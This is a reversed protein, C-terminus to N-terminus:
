NDKILKPWPILFSYFPPLFKTIDKNNTIKYNETSIFNNNKDFILRRKNENIKLTYLQELITIKAESLKRFWKEQKRILLSDKILLKEFDQFSLEINKTLGKVKYILEGSITELCYVKPTLFIARKCIYELKLKGLVKSDIFSSDLKSDTYISDTDTYYLNIKHNNKFQSMHIRSYATIAAAITISTNHNLENESNKSEILKYEDIDTVKTISDFFKNEFESFYDNHIININSFNDDMGFRGYLSNMLIKAIFNLPNSKDYQSRLNYLFDVYDKFIIESEFTYGWLVEIEYGYKLANDMEQSFLMDEWTGIPAMTRMGNNTLVRTQLIPHKINDPAVIKCYFFGFANADIKLIDGEFYTPTGIPMLRSEMQSPYLSNIDLSKLKVGPKSKPIYMDVAGGTYGKKIDSAIKGSLQPINEKNMFNSRFIAFALSPLTLYHHINLGFLDFILSNFKIIIQYLALCDINCYKISEAKLVWNNKFNSKYNNYEERSIKNDFMKFSPVIGKYDLNNENVFLFPFITKPSKIKFYKSLKSLSALLILYSDKFEIQYENNKGFKAKLSLMKDNHIIPHCDAIKLLYKLIFIIDFKAMNHIYVKYGHYKRILISNLCDLIMEEVSNYDWLGFVLKNEGDYICILFPILDGNKIFTEIDLTLFKNTLDESKKIKSIFKTKLEKLFLVQLNNKFCYKKNDIIRVFENNNIFEDKFSILITGKSAITVLNYSEFQELTITQGLENQIIFITSNETKITKLISGFDSPIMSNIINVKNFETSKTTSAIIIKNPIKEIKFGYTIIIEKIQNTKYYESKFQVLSLIFDIYWNLDEKNLRQLSGISAFNGDNYQIKFLLYLHNDSTFRYEIKNWFKQILNEFLKKTFIKNNLSIKYEEWANRNLSRRLKVINGKTAKNLPYTCVISYTINDLFRENIFIEFLFGWIELDKTLFWLINLVFIPLLIILTFIISNLYIAIIWDVLNWSKIDWFWAKLYYKYYIIPHTNQNPEFTFSLPTIKIM